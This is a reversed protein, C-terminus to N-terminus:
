WVPPAPVSVTAPLPLAVDDRRASDALSGGLVGAIAALLRDIDVPKTLYGSCGAETVEQEFGKMAHATLAFVPRAYGQRRLLRTAMYGDM